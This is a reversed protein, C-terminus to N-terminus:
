VMRRLPPNEGCARPHDATDNAKMLHPPTKGARAPTIRGAAAYTGFKSPKGRVRPPSGSSYRKRRGGARNEGCARPHDGCQRRTCGPVPTKGARAPTIGTKAARESAAAHKGRVRPPSGEIVRRARADDINEGCARPHDEARAQLRYVCATKGARAPTIGPNDSRARSHIRKGRVRPPSGNRGRYYELIKTNEGCARPHDMAEM